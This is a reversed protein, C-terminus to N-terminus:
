CHCPRRKRKCHHIHLYVDLEVLAINFTGLVMKSWLSSYAIVLQKPSIIPLKRFNKFQKPLHLFYM